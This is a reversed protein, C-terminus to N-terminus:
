SHGCYFRSNFMFNKVKPSVSIKGTTSYLIVKSCFEGYWSSKM